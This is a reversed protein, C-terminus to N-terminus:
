SDNDNKALLSFLSEVHKAVMDVWIPRDRSRLRPPEDESSRRQQRQTPPGSEEHGQSSNQTDRSKFSSSTGPEPSEPRTVPRPSGLSEKIDPESDSKGSPQRKKTEPRNDNKPAESDSSKAKESDKGDNTKTESGSETKSEAAGDGQESSIRRRKSPTVGLVSIIQHHSAQILAQYHLM